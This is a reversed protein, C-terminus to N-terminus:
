EFGKGFSLPRFVSNIYADNWDISTLLDLRVKLYQKALPSILESEFPKLESKSPRAAVFSDYGAFPLFDSFGAAKLTNFIIDNRGGPVQSKLELPFDLAVFGNEKINHRVVRYFERSYLRALDPNHPFPFDILILDYKEDESVTKYRRRLFTFADDNLVRVRHDQLSNKNLSTFRTDFFAFELMTGDLEVLDVREIDDYRLLERALLGDGGGAILVKKPQKAFAAVPLHTMLEHYIKEDASGFQLHTDLYLLTDVTGPNRRSAVHTIDIYQHLSRTREVKPSLHLIQRVNHIQQMSIESMEPRFYQIKLYTAYLDDTTKITFLVLTLGALAAVLHFLPRRTSSLFVILTTLGILCNAVGLFQASMIVDLRPLMMGQVALSSVLTGFYHFGIVWHTRQSLLQQDFASLIIPLEYGSLYGVAGAFAGGLCIIMWEYLMHYTGFESGLATTKLAGDTIFLLYVSLGGILSILIETAVLRSRLTEAPVRSAFLSGVGLGLLFCALVTLWPLLQGGTIAYVAFSILTQFGFSCFSLIFSLFLIGALRVRM